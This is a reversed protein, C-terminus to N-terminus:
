IITRYHFPAAKAQKPSVSAHNPGALIAASPEARFVASTQIVPLLHAQPLLALVFVLIQFNVLQVPVFYPEAVRDVATPFAATLIRRELLAGPAQTQKAASVSRGVSGSVSARKAGRGGIERQALVAPLPSLDPALHSTLPAGRGGGGSPCM